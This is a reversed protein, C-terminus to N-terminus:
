FKATRSENKEEGFVIELLLWCFDGASANGTTRNFRNLPQNDIAPQAALEKRRTFV